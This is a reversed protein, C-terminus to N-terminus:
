QMRCHVHDCQYEGQQHMTARALGDNCGKSHVLACYGIPLASCTLVGVSHMLMQDFCTTHREGVNLGVLYPHLHYTSLYPQSHSNLHGGAQPQTSHYRGLAVLAQNPLQHLVHTPRSAHAPATQTSPQEYAHVAERSVD